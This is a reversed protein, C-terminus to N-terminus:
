WGFAFCAVNGITAPTTGTYLWFDVYTVDKSKVSIRRDVGGNSESTYNGVFVVSTPFAVPYIWRTVGSVVTASLGWQIMFSKFCVPFKIYGSTGFVWSFGLATMIDCMAARLFGTTVIKQSDNDTDEIDVIESKLIYQGHPDEKAEHETVVGLAYERTALVKSPDVALTVASVSTVAITMGVVVDAAVGDTLVPKITDPYNCVAILDGDDDYLGLERITWGGMAASIVASATITSGESDSDYNSVSVRAVENVLATMEPAPTISSGGGDGIALQTISVATGATIAAAIKNSGTATVYSKYTAM